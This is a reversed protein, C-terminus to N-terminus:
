PTVERQKMEAVWAEYTALKQLYEARAAAKAWDAVSPFWGDAEATCFSSAGAVIAAMPYGQLFEWYVRRRDEKPTHKLGAELLAEWCTSFAARDAEGTM